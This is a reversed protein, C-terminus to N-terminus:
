GLEPEWGGMKGQSRSQEYRSTHKNYIPKIKEEYFNKVREMHNIKQRISKQSFAQIDFASMQDDPRSIERKLTERDDTFIRCNEIGRSISVYFQKDNSAGFSMSSQSLLVTKADKGQSAYSTSCYGYNFHAADRSILAGNSLKINGQADFGKITYHQGNFLNRGDISKMNKTIRLRENKSLSISKPVYVEFSDIAKFNLIKVDNRSKDWIKVKDESNFGIVEYKIGARFGFGSKHFEIIDSTAYNQAVQKEGMTLHRNQLREFSRERQGLKSYKRLNNRVAETIGEAEMHTPSVIICDSLSRETAKIYAKAVTNNREDKDTIEFICGDKNLKDFAKIVQTKRKDLDKSFGIGKALNSIVEKYTLTERQRVIESVRSVHIRSKTELIKLAGGAEVSSHQKWDGSLIVRSDQKNAIEIIKNMTPVGVLGAEDILLVNNKLASQAKKSKLLLAITDAGEFGKKRLVDRSADSSPAFAFLRKGNQEIGKKVEQLLTTKGVGADGSLIMIKDTNNLIGNVALRQGKNLIPNEIRYDPNLAPESAKGLTASQVLKKEQNLMNLTTLYRVTNREATIINSRSLLEKEILKPCIRSSVMDIAYALLRKEQVSANREIFHEISLDIVREATLEIHGGAGDGDSNNKLNNIISREEPTLRSDWLHALENDPVSQHKDKRTLRGLQAKAKASLIGRRLAEKEIELTRGSYKEIMSRSISAIEWRKGCKELNYGVQKLNEGLYSHYLAEYYSGQSKVVGMEIARFRQQEKCWTANILTCHSHLQPDPVFNKGNENDKELPRSTEHVFEAYLGNGTIHYHKGKGSGMQTQLNKEMEKMAKRVANSHAKLVDNDGTLAYVISVSKPASFTCDYMPRRNISNRATLRDGTVPNINYLLAEFDRSKVDGDLNLINALKGHWQGIVNSKECYYDQQALNERFYRIAAHANKSPEISLMFYLIFASFLSAM